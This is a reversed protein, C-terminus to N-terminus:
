QFASLVASVYSAMGDLMPIVPGLRGIGVYGNLMVDFEVDPNPGTPQVLIRLIPDGMRPARRPAIHEVIGAPQGQPDPTTPHPICDRFADGRNTFSASQPIIVLLHLKRHKDTNSLQALKPLPHRQGKRARKYPQFPKLRNVDALQVYRLYRHGNFERLKRIVPFQINPAERRNPQRGLYVIALQWMLHDLASRLDHIADGVILPWSNRIEVVREIRYVVAGEAPEYKRSLLISNPDPAGAQAIEHRLVGIHQRAHDLKAWSGSLDVTRAM